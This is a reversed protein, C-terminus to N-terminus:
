SKELVVEEQQKPKWHFPLTHCVLLVLVFAVMIVLDGQSYFFTCWNPMTMKDLQAITTNFMSYFFFVTHLVAYIVFLAAMIIYSLRLRKSALVDDDDTHAPNGPEAINLAVFIPYAVFWCLCRRVALSIQSVLMNEGIIVGNLLNGDYFPLFAVDPLDIIVLLNYLFFLVAEFGLGRTYKSLDGLASIGPPVLVIMMTFLLNPLAALDGWQIKLYQLLLKLGNRALCVGILVAATTLQNSSSTSESKQCYAMMLLGLVGPVVGLFIWMLRTKAYHPFYARDWSNYFDVQPLTHKHSRIYRYDSEVTRNERTNTIPDYRQAEKDYTGRCWTYVADEKVQYLNLVCYFGPNPLAIKFRREKPKAGPHYSVIKSTDYLSFVQPESLNVSVTHKKVDFKIRSAQDDNVLQHAKSSVTWKNSYEEGYLVSPQFVIINSHINEEHYTLNTHISLSSFETYSCDLLGKEPSDYIEYAGAAAFSSAITCITFSISNKLLM